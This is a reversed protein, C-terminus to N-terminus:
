ASSSIWVSSIPKASAAYLKGAAKSVVKGAGGQRYKEGRSRSRGENSLVLAPRTATVSGCRVASPRDESTNELAEPLDAFLTRWKPQTKLYQSPCVRKATKRASISAMPSACLADHATADVAKM